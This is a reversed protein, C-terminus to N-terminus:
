KPTSRVELVPAFVNGACIKFTNLEKTRTEPSPGPIPNPPRSGDIGGADAFPDPRPDSPFSIMFVTMHYDEKTNCHAISGTAAFSRLTREAALAFKHRPSHKHVSEQM